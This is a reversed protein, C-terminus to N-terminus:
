RRDGIALGVDSVASGRLTGKFRQPVCEALHKAADASDPARTSLMRL